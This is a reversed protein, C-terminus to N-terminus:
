TKPLGGSNISAWAANAAPMGFSRSIRLGSVCGFSLSSSSSTAQNLEDDVDLGVAADLFKHVGSILVM